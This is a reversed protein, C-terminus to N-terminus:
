TQGAQAWEIFREYLPLDAEPAPYRRIEEASVWALNQGERAEVEGDWRRILFVPMLLHFTEYAHSVFAFAEMDSTKLEIGLEERIERILAGEPHEGDEVKGGPLEWLGAMPKGAPRQQILLRGDSRVLAAASVLVLPRAGTQKTM